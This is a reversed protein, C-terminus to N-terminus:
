QAGKKGKESCQNCLEALLQITAANFDRQERIFDKMFFRIVPFLLKKMQVIVPGIWKRHSSIDGVHLDVEWLQCLRRLKELAVADVSLDKPILDLARNRINDVDQARVVGEQLRSDCRDQIARVYQLADPLPITCFPTDTV